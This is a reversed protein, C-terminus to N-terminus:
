IYIELSLYYSVFDFLSLNLWTGTIINCQGYFDYNAWPLGLTQFVLHPYLAVM